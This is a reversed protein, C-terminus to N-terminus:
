NRKYEKNMQFIREYDIAYIDNDTAKPMADTETQKKQTTLRKITNKSQQQEKHTKTRKATKKQRTATVSPTGQEDEEIIAQMKPTIVFHTTTYVSIANVIYATETQIYGNDRLWKIVRYTTRDTKGIQKAIYTQQINKTPHNIIVSLVSATTLGNIEILKNYLKNYKTM